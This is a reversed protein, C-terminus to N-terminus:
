GGPATRAAQKKLDALVTRLNAREVAPALKVARQAARDGAREDGSRYALGALKGYSLSRPPKEAAAVIQMAREAKPLQNLGTTEYATVMLKAARADPHDPALKLHREWVQSALRLGGRGDATYVGNRDVGGGLTARQFLLIALQAWADANGPDARTKAIQADVRKNFAAEAPSAGKDPDVTKTDASSGGGCAGLGALLAAACALAVARRGRRV